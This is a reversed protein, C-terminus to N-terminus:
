IMLVFVQIMPTIGTGGAIMALRTKAAFPYQLTNGRDASEGRLVEMSDGEHLTFLYPTLAGNRYHKIVFEIHGDYLSDSVPTYKRVPQQEADLLNRGRIQVYNTIPLNLRDGMGNPLAVTFRRSNHTEQSIQDIRLNVWQNVPLPCESPRLMEYGRHDLVRRNRFDVLKQIQFCKLLKERKPQYRHHPM